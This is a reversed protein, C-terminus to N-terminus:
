ISFSIKDLNAPCELKLVNRDSWFSEKLTELCTENGEDGGGDGHACVCLSMHACM